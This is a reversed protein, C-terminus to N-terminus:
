RVHGRGPGPDLWAQLPVGKRGHSNQHYYLSRKYRFSKGCHACRYPREGAHMRQHEVLYQNRTFSKECETCKYPREGTHIRLHRTLNSHHSFYRGCQTCIFSGESQGSHVRQHLVLSVKQRFSKPCQACTYPREGSHSLRHKRLSSKHCFSRECESCKYPKGGAQAGPLPQPDHELAARVGPQPPCAGGGVHGRQHLTLHQRSRFSQGCEACLFMGGAAPSQLPERLPKLERLDMEPVPPEEPGNGPLDAPEREPCWEEQTTGQAPCPCFGMELLSRQLELNEPEEEPIEQEEKVVVASDASCPEPPIETRESDKQGRVCPEEGREIQSLIDPKSIAYDLSILAEYNGKMVNKYLEKQWGELNEWEQESFYVSVDDFTMPVQPVEGKTGPPLRLIWFNRNKLLNEMNELRRQLQGYEQILTELVAWKSELQNGFEVVTKECGILKREARGTRGELNLLRIAHADVKRETAQIAAVLTLSIEATQLQTERVCAQRPVVHPQSCLPHQSGLDWEPAQCLLPLPKEEQLPGVPAQQEPALASHSQLHSKLHCNLSQKYRFAKDCHPCRHLREGTHVRQHKLLHHKRVFRKDCLACAYPREGTHTRFHNTLQSKESFRKGCAECRYPREGTHTRFHSTLKSREAFSKECAPCQFPREGTHVRQHEVLYYKQTFSKECAPCQFPREGTHVRQHKLLHHKRVFCKACLACAYPREGTHTRFHNTLKSKEAFRKECASCPYPREGTHTRQHRALQSPHSFTKGCDPCLPAGEGKGVHLRQHVLLSIKLRFSKRCKACAYPRELLSPKLGVSREGEPCRSPKAGALVQGRQPPLLSSKEIPGQGCAPSAGARQAAHVGQHVAFLQKCVFSEGCESCISLGEEAQADQGAAPALGGFAGGCPTPHGLSSGAPSGQQTLSSCLHRYSAAEAPRQFDAEASGAVRQPPEPTAAGDEFRGEDKSPDTPFDRGEVGGQSEACPTEEQKIWSSETPVSMPSGTSPDMLTERKPSAQQDQVHPEERAETQSQADPTPAASELSILTEYNSRVTSKHLEEQRQEMVGWEQGSFCGSVEDFKVPVKPVEGPTGPPLKLIWVDKKKLLNEMNELRRQLLGYEQILTGLVAWKRELQNGFEVVTRECGVLKNEAMGMRGELTLLRTGHSEVTTEVTAAPWLAAAEPPLQMEAEPTHHLAPPSTLPVPHEATLPWQSAQAAAREAM